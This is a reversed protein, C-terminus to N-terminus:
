YSVEQLSLPECTVGYPSDVCFTKVLMLNYDAPIHWLDCLLPASCLNGKNENGAMDIGWSLWGKKQDGKDLM